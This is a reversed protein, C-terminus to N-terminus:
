LVSGPVCQQCGGGGGAGTCACMMTLIPYRHSSPPLLPSAQTPPIEPVHLFGCRQQMLAALADVVVEVSVQTHSREDTVMAVASQSVVSASSPSRTSGLCMAPMWWWRWCRYPFAARDGISCSISVGGASSPSRTIGLCIAPMWWWRWCRRLCKCSKSVPPCQIFRQPSLSSESDTLRKVHRKHSSVASSHRPTQLYPASAAEHIVAAM